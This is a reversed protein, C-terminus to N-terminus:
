SKNLNCLEMVETTTMIVAVSDAMSRLSSLHLEETSSAVADVPLYVEFGRCFACRATTECCMHTLVGTIVLQDLGKENLISELATGLFADYSNKRLIIEDALPALQHIVESDPEGAKIHDSFFKGLMGLDHYGEHSHRTYIVTGGSARWIDLLNRINPIIDATSPLYCRGAPDAFYRLMDIILLASRELEPRLHTRPPVSRRIQTLWEGVKKQFLDGGTYDSSRM